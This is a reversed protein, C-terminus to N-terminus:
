VNYHLVTVPRHINLFRGEKILLRQQAYSDATRTCVDSWTFSHSDANLYIRTTDTNALTDPLPIYSYIMLHM